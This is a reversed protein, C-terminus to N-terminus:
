KRGNMAKLEALLRDVEDAQGAWTGTCQMIAEASGREPKTPAEVLEVEVVTGEPLTVGDDLVIVGNRVRGRFTMM